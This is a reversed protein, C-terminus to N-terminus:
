SSPAEVEGYVAIGDLVSIEYTNGNEYEPADGNMCRIGSPLTLSFDDSAVTFRMMYENRRGETGAAFTITTASSLSNWTYLVNPQITVNTGTQASQPNLFTKLASMSTKYGVTGAPNTVPMLNGDQLQATDFESLSKVNDTTLTAM